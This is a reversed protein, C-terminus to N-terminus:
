VAEKIQAVLRVSLWKVFKDCAACRLSAAHPGKGKCIRQTTSTCDKCPAETTILNRDDDVFLGLQVKSNNSPIGFSAKDADVHKAIM